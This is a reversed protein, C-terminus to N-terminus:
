SAKLPSLSTGSASSQSIATMYVEWEVNGVTSTNWNTWEIGFSNGLNDNDNVPAEWNCDYNWCASDSQYTAKGGESVTLSKPWGVVCNSPNMSYGFPSGEVQELRIIASARNSADLASSIPDQESWMGNITFHGIQLTSSSTVPTLAVSIAGPAFDHLALALISAAFALRFATSPREFFFYLVQNLLGSGMVSVRDTKGPELKHTHRQIFSWESSFISGIIGLVPFLALTQWIIFLITFGGKATKSNESNDNFHNALVIPRHVCRGSLGLYAAELVVFVIFRWLDKGLRGKTRPTFPAPTRAHEHGGSISKEEDHASTPDYALQSM